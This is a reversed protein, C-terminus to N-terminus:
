DTEGEVESRFSAENAVVEEMPIGSLERETDAIFKADDLNELIEWQIYDLKRGMAGERPAWEPDLFRMEAGAIAEVDWTEPVVLDQLMFLARGEAAKEQYIDNWAHWAAVYEPDDVIPPGSIKRGTVNTVTIVPPKPEPHRKLVAARIQSYPPLYVRVEMGNKLTIDRYPQAM